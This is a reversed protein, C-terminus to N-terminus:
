NGLGANRYTDIPIWGSCYEKIAGTTSCSLGRNTEWTYDGKLEVPQNLFSIDDDEKPM